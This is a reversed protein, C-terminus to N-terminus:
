DGGLIVQSSEPINGKKLGFSKGEWERDKGHSKKGIAKWLAAPSTALATKLVHTYLIM